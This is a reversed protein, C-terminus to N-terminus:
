SDPLASALARSCRRSRTGFFDRHMLDCAGGLSAPAAKRPRSTPGSIAPLLATPGASAGRRQRPMGHAGAMGHGACRRAMMRRSHRRPLPPQACRRSHRRLSCTATSLGPDTPRDNCKPHFFRERATFVLSCARLCLTRALFLALWPVEVADFLRIAFAVSRFARRRNVSERDAIGLRDPVPCVAPM